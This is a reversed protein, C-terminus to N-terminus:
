KKSRASKFRQCRANRVLWVGCVHLGPKAKGGVGSEGEQWDLGLEGMQMRGTSSQMQVQARLLAKQAERLQVRPIAAGPVRQTKLSRGRTNVGEGRTLQCLLVLSESRSMGRAVAGAKGDIRPHCIFRRSPPAPAARSPDWSEAGRLMGAPIHNGPELLKALGKHKDRTERSPSTDGLRARSRSWLKEAM